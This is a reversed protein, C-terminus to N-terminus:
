SQSAPAPRGVPPAVTITVISAFWSVALLWGHSITAAFGPAFEHLVYGAVVAAVCTISAFQHARLHGAPRCVTTGAALYVLVLGVLLAALQNVTYHRDGATVAIFTLTAIALLISTVTARM